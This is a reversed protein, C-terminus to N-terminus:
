GDADQNDVYHRPALRFVNVDLFFFCIFDCPWKTDILSM